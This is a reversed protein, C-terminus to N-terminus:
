SSKAVNVISIRPCLFCCLQHDEGHLKLWLLTWLGDLEFQSLRFGFDVEVQGFDLALVRAVFGFSIIPVGFATIACDSLHQNYKYSSPGLNAESWPSHKRRSTCVGWM